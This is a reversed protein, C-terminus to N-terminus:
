ARKNCVSDPSCPSSHYRCLFSPGSLAYVTVASHIMNVCRISTAKLLYWIWVCCSTHFHDMHVPSTAWLKMKHDYLLSIVNHFWRMIHIMRMLSANAKWQCGCLFPWNATPKAQSAFCILYIWRVCSVKCWCLLLTQLELLFVASKLYFYCGSKVHHIYITELAVAKWKTIIYSIWNICLMLWWLVKMQKVSVWRLYRYVAETQMYLFSATIKDRLFFGLGFM